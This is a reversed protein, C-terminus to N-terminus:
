SQVSPVASVTPVAPVAPVVPVASVSPVAPVILVRRVALGELLQSKTRGLVPLLLQRRLLIRQCRSYKMCPM